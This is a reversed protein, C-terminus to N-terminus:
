EEGCGWTSYGIDISDGPQPAEDFDFLVSNNEENYEWGETVIQGNVWVRITDIHPDSEDLRFETQLSVSRAIEEMQAGWDQDCISWWQSTYHQVLDYYGWGPSANMRGGGNCGSPIDGFIGYPVFTGPKLNDMVSTLSNLTLLSHDEEDSLFIAVLTANERIMSVCDGGIIVCNYLQQLGTENGSGRIGISDIIDSSDGVPDSSNLDVVGIIDPSDTTIFMIKFDPSYTLFINMFAEMNKALLTQYPMMSGSNDIIWIIDVIVIEEQLWSQIIENSVVASGEVSASVIPNMPDSSAVDLDTLDDLQDLPAYNAFFDIRGGPPIIWPLEPLSGFDIEIEPPINSMITIENIELDINGDNQITIEQTTDCGLLPSGFDHDSPTINIVPADGNGNLWVSAAAQSDGELYIDVRGENHEFTKPDYGVEIQHWGGPPVVFGEEEVSYNDGFIELRDVVLGAAGGNSITIRRLGSEHGSELHGFDIEGPAVILSPKKIENIGIDSCGLLLAFLLM